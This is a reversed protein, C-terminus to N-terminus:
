CMGAFGAFVEFNEVDVIGGVERALCNKDTTDVERGIAGRRGVFVAAGGGNGDRVEAGGDVLHVAVGWDSVSGALM